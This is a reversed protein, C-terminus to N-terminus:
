RSRGFRAARLHLALQRLDVDDLSGNHGCDVHMVYGAVSHDIAPKPTASPGEDERQGARAGQKEDSSDSLDGADAAPDDAHQRGSATALDTSKFFRGLASVFAEVEGLHHMVTRVLREAAEPAAAQQLAEASGGALGLHAGFAHRLARLRRRIERRVQAVRVRALRRHYSSLMDPALALELEETRRSSILENGDKCLFQEIDREGVSPGYQTQPPPVGYPELEQAEQGDGLTGWVQLNALMCHLAWCPSSQSELLVDNLTVGGGELNEGVVDLASRIQEVLPAVVARVLSANESLWQQGVPEGAGRAGGAAPARGHELSEAAERFTPTRAQRGVERPAPMSADIALGEGECVAFLREFFAWVEFLGLLTEDSLALREHPPTRELVRLAIATRLAALDLIMADKPDCVLLKYCRSEWFNDTNEHVMNTLKLGKAAWAGYMCRAASELTSMTRDAVLMCVVDPHQRALHCAAVGGISRGYVAIQTIGKGKLFRVVSEGDESICPPSPTGSSRGYGSYNFLFISVGRSLWFNLWGAQYVMTEYYAANPSCWVLVPGSFVPLGGRLPAHEHVAESEAVGQASPCPIFMADLQHGNKKRVWIQHGAFRMRLEARLQNLSGVAPVKFFRLVNRLMGKNPSRLEDLNMLLQEIKNLQRAHDEAKGALEAHVLMAQAEAGHGAPSAALRRLWDVLLPGQEPHQHPLQRHVLRAEGLWRELEQTLEMLSRQERSLKVGHEREQLALGASLTEIVNLGRACGDAGVGRPLGDLQRSARRLFSWLQRLYHSYQRSVEARFTAETNRQFLKLSGPFMLARAVLRAFLWFLVLDAILTGHGGVLRTLVMSFLTAIIIILAVVVLVGIFVVPADKYLGRVTKFARKCRQFVGMVLGPRAGM